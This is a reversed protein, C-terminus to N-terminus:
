RGFRRASYSGIVRSLTRCGALFASRCAEPLLLLRRGCKPSDMQHPALLDCLRKSPASTSYGRKQHPGGNIWSDTKTWGVEEAVHLAEPYTLAFCRTMSSNAVDWVYALVLRPFKAYKPYLSFVTETAAKMQIPCAVFDGIQEDLDLYAILDIGHDREPRAVEIGSRQLESALWNRGALEILQTDVTRRESAM